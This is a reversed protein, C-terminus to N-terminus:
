GHFWWGQPMSAVPDLTPPTPPPPSKLGLEKYHADNIQWDNLAQQYIKTKQDNCYQTYNQLWGNMRDEQLQRNQLDLNPPELYPQLPNGASAYVAPKATAAAPAQTAAAPAAQASPLTTRGAVAPNVTATAPPPHFLLRFNNPPTASDGSAPRRSGSPVAISNAPRALSAPLTRIM